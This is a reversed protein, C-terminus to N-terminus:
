GFGFREADTGFEARVAEYIEDVPPTDRTPDLWHEGLWRYRITRDRDILLCSRRARASLKLAVYRVDFAEAVALDPDAYLPFELGLFDIFRRHLSANSRSIGVVQVADSSAFWDFDRFACWEIVCDPSFDATYFALLVPTESLLESLAVRETGGDPWVLEAEFDPARDGVDLGDAEGM